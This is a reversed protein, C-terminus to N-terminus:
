LNAKLVCEAKVVFGFESKDDTWPWCAMTYGTQKYNKNTKLLTQVALSVKM